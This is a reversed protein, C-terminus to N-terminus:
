PCSGTQVKKKHKEPRNKVMVLIKIGNKMADPMGRGNVSHAVIFQHTRKGTISVTDTTTVPMKEM